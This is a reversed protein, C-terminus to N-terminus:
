KPNQIIFKLSKTEASSILQLSYLGNKLGKANLQYLGQEVKIAIGAFMLTGKTDFVNVRLNPESNNYKVLLLEGSSPNPYIVPDFNTSEDVQINVGPSRENCVCGNPLSIKQVRSVVVGDSSIVICKIWYVPCSPHQLLTVTPGSGLLQMNGTNFIGTTNWYWTITYPGYGPFGSAPASINASYVIPANCDPVSITFSLEPEELYASIKCGTNRIQRANNSPFENNDDLGTPKGNFLVAPNSYNLLYIDSLFSYDYAWGNSATYEYIVTNLIVPYAM